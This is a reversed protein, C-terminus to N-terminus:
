PRMQARIWSNADQPAAAASGRNGQGLDPGPSKQGGVFALLADAQAALTAEDAGSLLEVPVGKAAAVRYRALEAQAAAAEAASKQAAKEAKQQESLQSDKIRQLEEAASSNAKARDENQRSLAKWKEAEVKWDPEAPPTQSASGAQASQTSNASSAGAPDTM